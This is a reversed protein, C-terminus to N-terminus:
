SRHSSNVHTVHYLLGLVDHRRQVLV